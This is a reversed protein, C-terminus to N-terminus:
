YLIMDKYKGSAAQKAVEQPQVDCSTAHRGAAANIDSSTLHHIYVKSPLTRPCGTLEPWGWATLLLICDNGIKTQPTRHWCCFMFYSTEHQIPPSTTSTILFVTLFLYSTQRGETNRGNCEHVENQKERPACDWTIAHRIKCEDNIKLIIYRGSMEM